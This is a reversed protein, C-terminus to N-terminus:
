PAPGGGPENSGRDRGTMRAVSADWVSMAASIGADLVPFPVGDRAETALGVLVTDFMSALGEADADVPLAGGAIARGVCARLADRNRRREVALLDRLHRNGTSCTAGSLVIFCGLPHGADTQMRASARLAREIAERPPMGPDHLPTTVAGHTGVYRHLVDRFLAEKSVFAAYFSASSIDGMAAKLQALSTAEFGHEWFLHMARREAEDKDFGRPRGTRAM